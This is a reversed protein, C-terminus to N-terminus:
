QSGIKKCTKLNECHHSHYNQEEPNGIPLGKRVNCLRLAGDHEITSNWSILVLTKSERLGLIGVYLAYTIGPGIELAREACSFSSFM